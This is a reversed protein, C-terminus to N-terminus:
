DKDEEEDDADQAGNPDYEVEAGFSELLQQLERISEQMQGPDKSRKAKAANRLAATRAHKQDKTLKKASQAQFM